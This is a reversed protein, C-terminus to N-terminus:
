KIVQVSEVRSDTLIDEICREFDCFFKGIIHDPVDSREGAEIRKIDAKKRAFAKKIDCPFVVYHFFCDAEDVTLADACGIIESRTKGKINTGDFIIHEVNERIAAKLRRFATAFVAGNQSQDNISGCIEKRIEDPCIVLTNPHESLFKDRWTSKGAFPIGVCIWVNSM